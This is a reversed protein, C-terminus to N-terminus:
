SLQLSPFTIQTLPENVQFTKVNIQEIGFGKLRATHVDLYANMSAEDKFLYVGGAEKTDPNETWIKGILGPAEAIIHALGSLKEVRDGEWPRQDVFDIQLIMLPM